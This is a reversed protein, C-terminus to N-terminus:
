KKSAALTTFSGNGGTGQSPNVTVSYATNPALGTINAQVSQTSQQYVTSNNPGTVTVQYNVTGSANTVAGWAVYASASTINSVAVGSSLGGATGSTNQKSPTGAKIANNVATQLKNQQM